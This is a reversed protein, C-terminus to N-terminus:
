AWLSSVIADFIDGYLWLINMGFNLFESGSNRARKFTENRATYIIRIKIGTTQYSEISSASFSRFACIEVVVKDSTLYTSFLM